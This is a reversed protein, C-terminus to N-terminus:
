GSVRDLMTIRSPWLGKIIFWFVTPLEGFAVVVAIPSVIPEYQPLVLESDRIRDATAMADGPVILKGPVYILGIPATLAVLLYLWGAARLAKRQSENINYITMKNRRLPYTGPNLRNSTEMEM